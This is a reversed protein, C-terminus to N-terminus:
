IVARQRIRRGNTSPRTDYPAVVTGSLIMALMCYVGDFMVALGNM